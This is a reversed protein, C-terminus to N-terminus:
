QTFMNSMLPYGILVLLIIILMTAPIDLKSTRTKALEVAKARNQDQLSSAQARLTQYVQAGDNGASRMIDAFSTLEVVDIDAALNKIEEWPTRMQLQATLLATRLRVYPWGDCIGAAREMAEVAGHGSRVQHATLACYTCLARVFESRAAKARSRMDLHAMLGFLVTLVLTAGVPIAIPVSIRSVVLFVTIILPLFFGLAASLGVSFLHREPTRGLINLDTAPMRIPLERPKPPAAAVEPAIQVGAPHLRRLAPGLAPRGPVLQVVLLFLGYGVVAGATVAIGLWVNPQLVM